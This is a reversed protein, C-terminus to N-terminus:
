HYQEGKNIWVKIGISGYTTEARETAYDVEARLTHLPVRGRQYWEKRAIDVGGLRGSVQVKVGVSGADVVAQMAKKLVWRFPAKRELQKAIGGAVLKADLDPRKIESVEVWVEKGILRKLDQKLLEIESGKKGIVLGPRSTFLTVEVKESMRKIQIRSTGACVPKKLLTKRILFDELLFPGFERKSAFWVSRWDRNVVLRFATPSGKQGM